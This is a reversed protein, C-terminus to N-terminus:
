LWLVSDLQVATTGAALLAEGDAKRYVGGGAIVPLAQRRLAHVAALALPLIAPGYLRGGTLKGNAGPLLGRPAGLSVASAGLGALKDVWAEGAATLPFNVVLPLEGVGAQALRLAQEPEAQPAIGLEIASVAELGEMARVMREIEEPTDGILHVWVPAAARQWRRAGALLGKLGPNPLGSHLLFGGPFPIVAREEAPTRTFLSVPNTVFAGMPESWGWKEPPTFGLSGAANLWPSRLELGQRATIKTM